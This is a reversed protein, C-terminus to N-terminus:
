DTYNAQPSFVVSNRENTRTRDESSFEAMDMRWVKTVNAKIGLIEPKCPPSQSSNRQLVAWGTLAIYSRLNVSRNSHLIDDEPIYFALEYKV